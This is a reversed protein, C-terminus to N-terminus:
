KAVEMPAEGHLVTDVIRGAAEGDGFPNTWDPTRDIMELAGDHIEQPDTGVLVNAGVELTEPRETNERLTVCPVGLICTEEQIGGSDTLVLAAGSELALFDLYKQPEITRVGDPIELDFEEVANAARPHIPYIIEMELADAVRSAGELLSAFREEDDVTEARHATLLCFEGRTLDHEDFIATRELAVSKNQEVADVVTNGTVYIWEDPVGEDCLARRAQDTPAFLYESTHDAVIRNREEPMTRDHSRLGAEVHGLDIPLKSTAIAGALVSNTDGQVLVTDPEAELLAEEIGIIMEGTQQGHSGSGVALEYEPEPLGLESFFVDTLSESYHQGTHIVTYPISREQCERIVPALKIIEPRTGLVIAIESDDSM